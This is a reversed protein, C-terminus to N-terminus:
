AQELRALAAPDLAEAQIILATMGADSGAAHGEGPAWYVAQGAGLTLREAGDGRVWGEGALVCFLQPLRGQHHGIQDGPGLYALDVRVEGSRAQLLRLLRFASGYDAVPRAEEPDIRYLQM